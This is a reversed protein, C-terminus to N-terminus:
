HDAQTDQVSELSTHILKLMPTVDTYIVPLDTIQHGHQLVLSPFSDVGMNRAQSIEQQLVSQTQESYFDRRFQEVDLGTEAALEILVTDESPNRAELYYAQQIAQTMLPDFGAGQQRAAIVARCSAWTARRPQCNNWFDHNFRVGPISDEIRRWTAQINNRMNDPMPQDTDPALGGLLRVVQVQAPLGALLQKLVGAFGMCWSCMPDHIYFLKTM